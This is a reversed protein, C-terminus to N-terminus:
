YCEAQVSVNIDSSNYFNNLVLSNNDIENPNIDKKEFLTKRLIPNLKNMFLTIKASSPKYILTTIKCYKYPKRSLNKIDWNLILTHSFHLKEYNINKIAVPRITKDLFTKLFLPGIFFLIFSLIVLFLSFKPSKRISLVALVLLLLFTALLWAFAIYDYNTFHNIYLSISAKLENMKEVIKRRM